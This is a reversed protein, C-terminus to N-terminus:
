RKIAIYSKTMFLFKEKIIECDEFLEAFEKYTLLRRESLFNDIYEQTPRTIIGWITFNRMLKAQIETPLWHVFPTILHPEVFFEKAPTQVFVRKGVRLIENAFKIQREYTELHEIVSNSYAIDFIHDGYKLSTGDGYEYTINENTVVNSPIEINVLLINPKTNLFNWNFESGGVDIISTDENVRFHMQFYKMRKKRFYSLFPRMVDHIDLKMNRKM